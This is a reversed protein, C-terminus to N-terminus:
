RTSRPLRTTRERPKRLSIIPVMVRSTQEEVKSNQSTSVKWRESAFKHGVSKGCVTTPWLALSCSWLTVMEWSNYSSQQEAKSLARSNRGSYNLTWSSPHHQCHQRPAGQSSPKPPPTPSFQHGPRRSSHEHLEASHLLSRKTGDAVRM